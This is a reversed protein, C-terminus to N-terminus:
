TTTILLIQQLANVNISKLQIFDYVIILSIVIWPDHTNEHPPRSTFNWVFFLFLNKNWLFSKLNTNTSLITYIIIM